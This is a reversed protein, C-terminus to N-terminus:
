LENILDTITERQATTLTGTIFALAHATQDAFDTPAGSALRASLLINVSADYRTTQPAGVALTLSQEVKNVWLSRGGGAIWQSVYCTDLGLGDKNGEYIELNPTGGGNSSRNIRLEGAGAGSQLFAWSRSANTDYQSVMYAGITDTANTRLMVTLTESGLFDAISGYQSSASAFSLGGTGWTPGNVLTMDNSTLGGLVKVTSGSNYNTDPMM